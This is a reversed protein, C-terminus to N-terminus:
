GAYERAIESLVQKMKLIPCHNNMVVDLTTSDEYVPQNGGTSKM